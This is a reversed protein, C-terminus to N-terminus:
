IGMMTATGGTAVAATPTYTLEVYAAYANFTGTIATSDTGRIRLDDVEAQTLSGSYTVSNWAAAQSVSITFSAISTAGKYIAYVTNAGTLSADSYVWLVAQSVASVSVTELAVEFTATTTSTIFDSATSPATPQTVVDDLMDFTSQAGPTTTWGTTVDANPRLIATAM